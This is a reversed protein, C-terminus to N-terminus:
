ATASFNRRSHVGINGRFGSSENGRFLGFFFSVDSGSKVVVGNHVGGDKESGLGLLVLNRSDVRERTDFYRM